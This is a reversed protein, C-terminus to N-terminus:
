CLNSDRLVCWSKEVTNRPTVLELRRWPRHQHLLIRREFALPPLYYARPDDDKCGASELHETIRVCRLSYFSDDGLLTPLRDLDLATDFHTRILQEGISVLFTPIM